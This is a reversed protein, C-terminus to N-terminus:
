AVKKAYKCPPCIGWGKHVIRPYWKVITGLHRISFRGWYKHEMREPGFCWTMFERFEHLPYGRSQILDVAAYKSRCHNEQTMPAEFAYKSYAWLKAFESILAESEPYKKSYEDKPMQAEKTALVWHGWSYFKWIAKLYTFSYQGWSTTHIQDSLCFRICDKFREIDIKGEEMLWVATNRARQIPKNDVMLYGVTEYSTIFLQVLENAEPYKAAFKRDPMNAIHKWKEKDANSINKSTM